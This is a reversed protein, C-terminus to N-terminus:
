YNINVMKLEEKNLREFFLVSFFKVYNTISYNSCTSFLRFSLVLWWFWQYITKASHNVSLLLKAKNGTPGNDSIIQGLKTSSHISTWFLYELICWTENELVWWSTVSKAFWLITLFIFGQSYRSFPVIIKRHFM